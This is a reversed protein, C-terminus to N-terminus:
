TEGSTKEEEELIHKLAEVRRQKHEIPEATVCNRLLLVRAYAWLNATHPGHRDRVQFYELYEDIMADIETTEDRRLEKSQRLIEVVGQAGHDKLICLAVFSAM